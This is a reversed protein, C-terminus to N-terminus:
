IYKLEGSHLNLNLLFFSYLDYHRHIRSTLLSDGLLLLLLMLFLSITTVIAVNATQQQSTIVRHIFILLVFIKETIVLSLSISVIVMRILM